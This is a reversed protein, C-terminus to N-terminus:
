EAKGSDEKKADAGGNGERAAMAKDNVVILDGKIYDVVQECTNGILAAM